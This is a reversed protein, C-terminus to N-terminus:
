YQCGMSDLVLPSQGPEHEAECADFPGERSLDPGVDNADACM